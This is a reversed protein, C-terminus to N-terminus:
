KILIKKTTGDTYHVINVGDVTSDIKQGSTSYIGKVESTNTSISSIGEPVETTFSLEEGYVTGSTNTAFARYTYTTDYTLDSLTAMMNNGDVAASITNKNDDDTWYEFGIETAFDDYAEVITGSLTASEDTIDTAELTEVSLANAIEVINEFWHWADAEAYAEASGVPVYLTGNTTDVYDFLDDSATPPTPNLSTVSKISSCNYLAQGSQSGNLKFNTIHEGFVITELAPCNYLFLIPIDEANAYIYAEKLNACDRFMSNGPTSESSSGLATVNEPITITELQTGQFCSGGITTLTSPINIESLSSNYFASMSLTELGENLNFGTINTCGFFGGLTRLSSPMDLVGTLGTCYSFANSGITAVGESFTVDTLGSCYSFANSGIDGAFVLPSALNVLRKSSGSAYFARSGIEGLATNYTLSVLATCDQFAREGISVYEGPLYISTLSSCGNFAYDGVSQLNNSSEDAEPFTIATLASCGSFAENGIYQISTPLAISQLTNTVGEFANNYIGIVTYTDGEYDVNMPITYSSATSTQTALECTKEDADVVQYVVGNEDTFSALGYAKINQFKSWAPTANTYAEVAIAPVYLTGNSYTDDAFVNETLCTPPTTAFSTVSRLSGYNSSYWFATGGISTLTSPLEIESLSNCYTFAHDGITTLGEPFNIDRLDDCSYFAYDGIYEIGEPLTVHQIYNWSMSVNQSFAEDGIGVVWYGGESTSISKPIVVSQTTIDTPGVEVYQDLENVITYNIGDVTFDPVYTEQAWMDVALLTTLFLLLIRKM